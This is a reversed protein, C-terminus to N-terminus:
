KTVLFKKYLIYRCRLIAQKILYIYSYPNIPTLLIEKIYTPLGYVCIRDCAKLSYINGCNSEISVIIYENLGAYSLFHIPLWLIPNIIWVLTQIFNKLAM